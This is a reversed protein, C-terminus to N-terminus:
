HTNWYSSDGGFIDNSSPRPDGGFSYNSDFRDQRPESQRTRKARRVKRKKPRASVASTYYAGASTRSIPRARKVRRAVEQPIRYDSSPSFRKSKGINNRPNGGFNNHDWNNFYNEDIGYPDHGEVLSNTGHNLGKITKGFGKGFKKLAKKNTPTLYKKKLRSFGRVMRNKSEKTKKVKRKVM